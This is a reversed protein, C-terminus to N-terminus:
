TIVPDIWVGRVDTVTVGDKVSRAEGSQPTREIPTFLTIFCKM